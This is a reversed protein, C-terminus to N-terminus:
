GNPAEWDLYRKPFENRNPEVECKFVLRAKQKSFFGRKVLESVAALYGRALIRTECRENIVRRDIANVKDIFEKDYFNSTTGDMDSCAYGQTRLEAGSLSCITLEPIDNHPIAFLYKDNHYLGSFGFDPHYPCLRHKTDLYFGSDIKQLKEMFNMTLM